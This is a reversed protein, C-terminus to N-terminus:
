LKVLDGNCLENLWSIGNNTLGSPEYQKHQHYTKGCINCICEGNARYSNLIKNDQEETLEEIPNHRIYDCQKCDLHQGKCKNM